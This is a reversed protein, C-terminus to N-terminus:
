SLNDKMAEIFKGPNDSYMRKLISGSSEAAQDQAMNQHLTKEYEQYFM